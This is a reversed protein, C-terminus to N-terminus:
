RFRIHKAIEEVFNSIATFTAPQKKGFMETVMTTEKSFNNDAYAGKVVGVGIDEFNANLINNRHLPSAMWANVIDESDEFNMALNEGGASLNYGARAMFDWPKLGYAYHEFYNRNIMDKSKATAADQLQADVKVPTLGYYVREKNVLYIINESSVESARAPSISFVTAILSLLLICYLNQPLYSKKM